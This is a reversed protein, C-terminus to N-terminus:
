PLSTVTQSMLLEHLKEVVQDVSVAVQRVPTTGINTCLLWDLETTICLSQESWVHWLEYIAIEQRNTHNRRLAERYITRQSAFAPQQPDDGM